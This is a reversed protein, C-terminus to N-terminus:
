EVEKLEMAKTDLKFRRKCNECTLTKDRRHYVLPILWRVEYCRPCPIMIM